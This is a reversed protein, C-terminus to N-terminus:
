NNGNKIASGAPSTQAPAVAPEPNAIPPPQGLRIAYVLTLPGDKPAPFAVQKLAFAACRVVEPDPFRSENEVIRRTQGREDLDIRLEVRGWLGSDRELAAAYCAAIDGTAAATANRVAAVDFRVRSEIASVQNDPPGISPVPADGPWLKIELKVRIPRGPMPLQLSQTKKTLCEAVSADALKTGLLRTSVIRGHSDVDARVLTEGKLTQQKRLGEEFCLRYPWYGYKRLHAQLGPATLAHLPRGTRRDRAAREPLRVGIAAADVRVRAGPHYGPRSSIFDPDSKGGVNWRALEEDRGAAYVEGRERPREWLRYPTEIEISPLSRPPEGGASGELGPPPGLRSAVAEAADAHDTAPAPGASADEQEDVVSAAAARPAAKAPGPASAAPTPQCALVGAAIAFFNRV